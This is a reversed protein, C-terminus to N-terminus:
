SFLKFIFLKNMKNAKSNKCADSDSPEIIKNEVKEILIKNLLYKEFNIKLPHIGKHHCRDEV